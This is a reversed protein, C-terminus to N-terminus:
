NISKILFKTIPHSIAAPNIKYFEKIMVFIIEHFKSPMHNLRQKEAGMWAGHDKNLPLLSEPTPGIHNFDQLISAHLSHFGAWDVLQGTDTDEEKVITEGFGDGYLPVCPCFTWM